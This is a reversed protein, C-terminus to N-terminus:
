SRRSSNSTASARSKTDAPAVTEKIYRDVSLRQLRKVAKTIGSEDVVTVCIKIQLEAAKKNAAAIMELAADLTLSRKEFSKMNKIKEPYFM